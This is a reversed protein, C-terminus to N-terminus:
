LLEALKEYVFDCAKARVTNRGIDGFHRTFVSVKGNLFFGFCVTGVPVEKTGGSPGAIGTIGVGVEAHAQEAAGQAMGGAVPESVVGFSDITGASVGLYETKARNAYTIFSAELVGSADPVSVLRACALGGTCSEAFSIHYGKEMLRAVVQAETPQEMRIDMGKAPIAEFSDRESKKNM